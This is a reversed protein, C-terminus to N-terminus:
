KEYSIINKYVEEYSIYKISDNLKDNNETIFKEQVLFYLEKDTLHKNELYMDKFLKYLKKADEENQIYYFM